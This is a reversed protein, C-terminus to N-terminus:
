RTSTNIIPINPVKMSSEDMMSAIQSENLQSPKFTQIMKQFVGRDAVTTKTLPIPATFRIWYVVGNANLYYNETYGTKSSIKEDESDVKIISHYVDLNNIKLTDWAVDSVVRDGYRNKLYNLETDIRKKEDAMLDSFSMGRSLIPKVFVMSFDEPLSESESVVNKSLFVSSFKDNSNATWSKPYAMKYGLDPNSYNLWDTLSVEEAPLDSDSVSDSIKVSGDKKLIFSLSVVLILIIVILFSIILILLNPKQSKEEVNFPEM